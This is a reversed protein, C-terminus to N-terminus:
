DDHKRERWIEFRLKLQEWRNSMRKALEEVKALVDPPLEKLREVLTETPMENLSHYETDDKVVDDCVPVNEVTGESPKDPSAPPETAPAVDDPVSVVTETKPADAVVTPLGAPEIHEPMCIVHDSEHVSDASATKYSVDTQPFVAECTIHTTYPVTRNSDPATPSTSPNTVLRYPVATIPAMADKEIAERETICMQQLVGLHIGAEMYKGNKLGDGIDAVVEIVRDLFEKRDM